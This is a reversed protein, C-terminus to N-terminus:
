KIKNLEKKIKKVKTTSLGFIICIIIIAIYIYEIYDKWSKKEVYNTWIGVKDKKAQKEKKELEKTYKYDGYIYKIEALGNEVLKEQLLDGDVFVWALYRDYKDKEDSGPDFELEIKKAKKLEDCTFNLAEKSYKEKKKLETTNVALFRVKYVEDKYDFAATDGDICKNLTVTIKGSRANVVM